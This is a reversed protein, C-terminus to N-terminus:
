LIEMQERSPGTSLYKVKVGLEKNLFPMLDVQDSYKYVPYGDDDYSVCIKWPFGLEVSGLVDLKTIALETCGNIMIARKLAPIDLWGVKRKRGTTTGYEEGQYVLLNAIDPNTIETPFSGTGVKTVYPKFVGVVRDIHTPGVGTSTCAAGAVNSSTSINPYDGHDIDLETGQTGEFLISKSVGIERNLETPVDAFYKRLPNNGMIYEATRGRRAYKDRSCPMIGRKTSGVGGGEDEIARDEIIHTHSIIHCNPSIKLLDKLHIGVSELASAEAEFKEPDILCGAAIYAPKNWLVGVPIHHFKYKTDHAWVTAGTNPGGSYRVCIDHDKMLVDCIKGKGEDGHQLGVVITNVAKGKRNCETCVAGTGHFWAYFRKRCKICTNNPERDEM